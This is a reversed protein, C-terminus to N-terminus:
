RRNERNERNEGGPEEELGDLHSDYISKVQLLGLKVDTANANQYAFLRVKFCKNDRQKVFLNKKKCVGKIITKLYSKTSNRKLSCQAM